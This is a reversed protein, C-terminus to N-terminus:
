NYRPHEKKDYAIKDYLAKQYIPDSCFHYTYNILDYQEAEQEQLPYLLDYHGGRRIIYIKDADSNITEPFRQESITEFFNYSVVQCNLALPLFILAHEGGENEMTMIDSEILHESGIFFSSYNSENKLELINAYTLLRAVMIMQRDFEKNQLNHLLELFVEISKENNKKKEISNIIYDILFKKADDFKKYKKLDINCCHLIDLFESLKSIPAYYKHINELFKSM